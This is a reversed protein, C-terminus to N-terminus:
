VRALCRCRRGAAGIRRHCEEHESSEALLVAAASNNVQIYLGAPNINPVPQESMRKEGTRRLVPKVPLM